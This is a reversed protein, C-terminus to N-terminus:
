KVCTRTRESALEMFYDVKEEFNNKVDRKRRLELFAPYIELHEQDEESRTGDENVCNQCWVNCKYLKQMNARCVFQETRLRFAMRCFELNSKEM